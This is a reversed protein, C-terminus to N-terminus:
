CPNWEDGHLARPKRSHPLLFLQEAENTQKLKEYASALWYIEVDCKEKEELLSIAREFFIHWASHDKRHLLEGVDIIIKVIVKRADDAFLDVDGLVDEAAGM